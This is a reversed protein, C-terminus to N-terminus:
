EFMNTPVRVNEWWSVIRFKGSLGSPFKAPYRSALRKDFNFRKYYGNSLQSGNYNAVLCRDRQVLAGYVRLPGSPGRSNLNTAIISGGLSFYVGYLKCGTTTNKIAANDAIEIDDIALAAFMDKNSGANLNTNTYIVNDEIIVKKDTVVTIFNKVNGKIHIDNPSYIVLSDLNNGSPNPNPPSLSDLPSTAYSGRRVYVKGNSRFELWLAQSTTDWVGHYTLNSSAGSSPYKIGSKAYTKTEEANSPFLVRDVGSEYGKKLIAQNIGSKWKPDFNKALTVKEMFVPSGNVHLRGNFHSQTNMTDLTVWFEDNGGFNTMYGKLRFSGSLPNLLVIVTDRHVVGGDGPLESYSVLKRGGGAITSVSAVFNGGAYAGTSFSQSAIQGNLSTDQYVRSLGVNAGAQALNHSTTVLNYYAMNATTRTGMKMVSAGVMAFLIGTGIVLIIAAKGAM